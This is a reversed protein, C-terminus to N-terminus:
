KHFCSSHVPKSFLLCFCPLSRAAQVIRYSSKLLAFLPVGAGRGRLCLGPLEGPGRSQAEVGVSGQTQGSPCGTQRAWTHDEVVQSCGQGWTSHEWM